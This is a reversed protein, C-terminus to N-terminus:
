WKREPCSVAIFRAKVKMFCGCVKCKWLKNDFHECSSCINIRSQYEHDSTRVQGTTVAKEVVAKASKKLFRLKSQTM